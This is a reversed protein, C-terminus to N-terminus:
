DHQAINVVVGNPARVFFRRVGWEERGLPHVIPYGRRVAEAYAEEVDSVGVSIASDEPATADRTVLQVAVRPDDPSELRVVWGLDFSPQLGLFGTFFERAAGDEDAPLNPTIRNLKM